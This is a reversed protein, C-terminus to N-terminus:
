RDMGRVTIGLSTRARTGYRSSRAGGEEEPGVMASPGPEGDWGSALRQSAGIPQCM